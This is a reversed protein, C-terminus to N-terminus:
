LDKAPIKPPLFTPVGVCALCNDGFGVMIRSQSLTQLLFAGTGCRPSEDGDTSPLSPQLLVGIMDNGLADYVLVWLAEDAQLVQCVDSLTGAALLALFGRLFLPLGIGSVRLPSKSFQVAHNGVFGQKRTAHRNLYVSVIRALRARHAPMGRISIPGVLAQEEDALVTM